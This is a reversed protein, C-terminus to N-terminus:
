GTCTTAAIDVYHEHRTTPKSECPYILFRPVCITRVIGAAWDNPTGRSLPSPRKRSLKEALKRCLVAYEENLREPCFRDTMAVIAQLAKRAEDPSPRSQLKQAPRRDAAPRSQVPLTTVIGFREKATSYREQLGRRIGGGFFINYRGLLGDYIVKDKFPLLVTEALVPLY